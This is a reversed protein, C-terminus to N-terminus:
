NFQKKYFNWASDCLEDMGRKTYFHLLKEAKDVKAYCESIDGSRRPLIDFPIINGTKEEFKKVIELVSNGSGTGLNFFTCGPNNKLYRLAKLHGDALDMVHIYDRVGTGDSTDYDDGFVKLYRLEGLAVRLIYPMLNNPIGKPSEGILGSTHAGAPNFYRLCIIRWNKEDNALKSLIQEIKLKTEGYPNTPKLPHEEDIPLYQPEGYVTASSSFIFMKINNKQMAKILSLTGGVNNDFYLAPKEVSEAVSKLGAFHMVAEIKNDALVPDMLDTDRIDGEVMTLEKGTIKNLADIVSHHSNCFNDFITVNHGAETLVVAAHSGIYGAGGTLLINM